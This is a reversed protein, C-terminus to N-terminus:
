AGSHVHAAWTWPADPREARMRRTVAHLAHAAAPRHTTDDTTRALQHHVQEAMHAAVEDGVEWLTGIAQAYGALQFASALHVAEDALAASGRATACASLYALQAGDLPLRSLETVALPGDHLLLHSAEANLPDSSAHCAFHAFAARPLAALVAEATAAPGVLVEPAAGRGTFGAAFATAERATAPLAAHGPTEPMAVALATREGAPVPRARSHLLARMTPTYSSVVRDLVSAGPVDHRGAAHLPLFNLPGSPSWWVRPWPAGGGPHVVPGAVVLVPEALVDWLWALTDVVARGAMGRVLRNPEASSLTAIADRFAGAQEVLEDVRLRPLPVVAATGDRLVLADCRSRDLNVAIVPGHAAAPALEAFTVIPPLLFRDFGPLARIQELLANWERTLAEHPQTVFLSGAHLSGRLAVFRDALRPAAAHLRDLEHRTILASTLLHARGAEWSTLAGEADGDVIKLTVLPNSVTAAELSPRESVPEHGTPDRLLAAAGWLYLLAADPPQEATITQRAADVAEHFTGDENTILYRSFLANALSIQESRRGPDDPSLAALKLRSRTIAENAEAVTEFPSSMATGIAVHGQVQGKDTFRQELANAAAQMLLPLREPLERARAEPDTIQETSLFLHIAQVRSHEPSGPPLERLAREHLEIIENLDSRDAPPTPTELTLMSSPGGGSGPGLMFERSMDDLSQFASRALYELDRFFQPNTTVADVLRSGTGLRDQLAAALGDAFGGEDPAPRRAQGPQRHKRELDTLLERLQQRQKDIAMQSKDFEALARDLEPPAGGRKAREQDLGSRVDGVNRGLEDLRDLAQWMQGLMGGPAWAEARRAGEEASRILGPDGGSTPDAATRFLRAAEAMLPRDGAREAKVVLAIALGAACRAYHQGGASVVDFAERFVTILEDVREEPPDMGALEEAHMLAYGQACLGAPRAEHGAPLLSVALEALGAVLGDRDKEGRRGLREVLLWVVDTVARGMVQAPTDGAQVLAERVPELWLRVGEPLADPNSLLVPLLLVAATLWDQKGEAGLLEGRAVHCVGVLYAVQVDLDGPIALFGLLQDLDARTDEALIAEPDGAELRAAVAALLRDRM